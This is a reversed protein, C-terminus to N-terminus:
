PGSGEGLNGLPRVEGAQFWGSGWEDALWRGHLLLPQWARPPRIGKVTVFTRGDSLFFGEGGPWGPLRMGAVSVQRGPEHALQALERTAPPREPLLDLPSVTVPQGLLHQEWALRQAPSEPEVPPSAFAFAMQRSSGSRRAAQAEALLAARSEALGDLGGCQILHVVEKAQLSVRELLDGLGSFPRQGREAILAAAMDRRLDRVQGLGLWIVPAEEYTLTFSKQSHNVHPPRIGIGLRTAEALYIARHHFGGHGALRACLFEAPWHAKLYASRYSVDAYATAHGRNFGYGAFPLIQEWL